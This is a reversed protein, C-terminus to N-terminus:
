KIVRVIESLLVDIDNSFNIQTKNPLTESKRIQCHLYQDAIKRSSNELHQMSEKFSKSGAYNNAVESFNKCNFIPSVHDILARTLLIVSIYCNKQYCTNLETLIQILKSLNYNKNSINILEKIRTGDIYMERSNDEYNKVIGHEIEMKLEEIAMQVQSVMVKLAPGLTLSSLPLNMKHSNQLFNYYYQSNFKLLPAVKNCWDICDQQSPFGKKVEDLSYLAELKELIKRKNM